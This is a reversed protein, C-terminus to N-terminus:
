EAQEHIVNYCISLREQPADELKKFVGAIWYHCGGSGRQEPRDMMVAYLKRGGGVSFKTDAQITGSGEIDGITWVRDGAQWDM